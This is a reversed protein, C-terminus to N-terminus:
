GANRMARSREPQPIEQGSLAVSSYGPAVGGSCTALNSDVGFPDYLNKIVVHQIRIRLREHSICALAQGFAAAANDAM